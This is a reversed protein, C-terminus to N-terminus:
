ASHALPSADPKGICIDCEPQLCATPYEIHRSTTHDFSAKTRYYAEEGTSIIANLTRCATYVPLEIVTCRLLLRLTEIRDKPQKSTKALCLQARFHHYQAKCDEAKFTLSRRLRISFTESGTEDLQQAEDLLFRGHRLTTANTPCYNDAAQHVSLAM